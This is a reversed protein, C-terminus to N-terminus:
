KRDEEIVLRLGTELNMRPSWGPLSKGRNWPQMVERKRYPRQGWVIPLGSGFIEEYRKVLEKLKIPTGSSIAYIEQKHQPVDSFLREAAVIFSAVVDDIYVLDLLQEGPSMLVPNNTKTAMKLLSFLKKRPDYCGYTDYLKLTIVRLPSAEQYFRLIDEFAQKTAAYLCVPNYDENSFHQWSTGTNILRYCEIDVMAEVLQSGFLINSKILPEVDETKHEALFLSALHFVIDPRISKLLLFMNKTSGDHYHVKIKQSIDDLMSLNADPRELVHVQWQDAVLCKVLHSGVFGAGGTILAIKTEKNKNM